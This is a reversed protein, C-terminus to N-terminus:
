PIKPGLPIWATEIDKTLFFEKGANVSDVKENHRNLILFLHGKQEEIVGHQIL